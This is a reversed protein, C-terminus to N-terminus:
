VFFGIPLIWTFLFSMLPSAPEVIPAAFRVGAATLRGILDPDEMLGTKYYRPEASKDAFTIQVEDRSVESIAKKDLMELFTSYPVEEIRPRMLRPFVFINLLLMVVMVTLAYYMLNKPPTKIERM